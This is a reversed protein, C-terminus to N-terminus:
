WHLLLQNQECSFNATEMPLIEGDLNLRMHRSQLRCSATLFRHSIKCEHLKGRMLPVLYAPLKWRPVADVVLVDLLGDTVAALPAIPIGGGFFRGNAVSCIMFKGDMVTGDGMEIHMENPKYAIIARLVGYLYPLLGHVYKKAKEAFDLTVVDFGAGCSNIFFHQNVRGTDVPRAPKTLILELAAEWDMPIGATKIFDNGTGSPIIGLATKTGHLGAATETVTGDGGIAIVTEVGRQAADRALETAHTPHDTELLEYALGREDLRQCVAKCAAKSRGNGATPNVIISIMCSRREAQIHQIM